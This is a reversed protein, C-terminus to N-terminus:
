NWFNIWQHRCTVGSTCSKANFDIAVFRPRRSEGVLALRQGHFKSLKKVRHFYRCRFYSKWLTWLNRYWFSFRKRVLTLLFEQSTQCDSFHYGTVMLKLRNSYSRLGIFFGRELNVNKFFECTETHFGFSWDVPVIVFNARTKFAVKLSFVGHM